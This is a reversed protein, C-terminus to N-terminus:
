PRLAGASKLGRAISAIDEPTAGVENLSSVIDSLNVEDRVEIHLNNHAIAVPAIRQKSAPCPKESKMDIRRLGRATVRVRLMRMSSPNEVNIRGDIHGSELARVKASVQFQPHHEVMDVIQGRVVFARPQTNSRLVVAGKPIFGTAQLRYVSHADLFYNLGILSALDREEFTVNSESLLEGRYIDDRAIGVPVHIHVTATGTVTKVQERELWGWQFHILGLPPHPSSTLITAGKRVQSTTSLAEIELRVPEAFYGALHERLGMKLDRPTLWPRAYVVFGVHMVLALWHAMM